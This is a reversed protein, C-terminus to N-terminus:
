LISLCEVGGDNALINSIIQITQITRRILFDGYSYKNCISGKTLCYYILDEKSPCFLSSRKYFPLGSKKIEKCTALICYTQLLILMKLDFTIFSAM